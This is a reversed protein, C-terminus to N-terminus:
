KREIDLVENRIGREDFHQVVRDGLVQGLYLWQLGLGCFFHM